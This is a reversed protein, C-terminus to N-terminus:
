RIKMVKRLSRHFSKIANTTYILKRIKPPYAFFTSFKALNTKWFKSIHPYKEDWSKAFQDLVKLGKEETAATYIKKLDATVTQAGELACIAPIVSKIYLANRSILRRICRKM